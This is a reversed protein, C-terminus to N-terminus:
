LEGRHLPAQEILVPIKIWIEIQEQNNLSIGVKGQMQRAILRCLQLDLGQNIKKNDPQNFGEMVSKDQPFSPQVTRVFLKVMGADPREYGMELEGKDIYRRIYYIYLKLVQTLREFAVLVPCKKLAPSLRIKYKGDPDLACMITALKELLLNLDTGSKTFDLTGTMLRTLGMMAEVMQLLRENNAQVIAAYKKGEASEASEAIINSFGTIANLPTRIEHNISELIAEIEKRELQKKESM